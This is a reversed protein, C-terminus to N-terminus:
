RANREFAPRFNTFFNEKTISTSSPVANDFIPDVSDYSRRKV